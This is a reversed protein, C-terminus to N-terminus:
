QAVKAAEFEQNEKSIKLNVKDEPVYAGASVIDKKGIKRGEMLDV